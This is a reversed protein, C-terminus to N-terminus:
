LTTMADIPPSLMVDVEMQPTLGDGADLQNGHMVLSDTPAVRSLDSDLDLVTDSEGESAVQQEGGFAVDDFGGGDSEEDDDVVNAGSAEGEFNEEVGGDTIEAGAEIVCAGDVDDGAGDVDDGAGDVDDEAGDVDDEAGDVDDGAGDADDGAGDIDDGVDRKDNEPVVELYDGQLVDLDL